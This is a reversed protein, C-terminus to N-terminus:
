LGKNSTRSQYIFTISFFLYNVFFLASFKIYFTKLKEKPNYEYFYCKRILPYFNIGSRNEIQTKTLPLYNMYVCPFSECPNIVTVTKQPAM